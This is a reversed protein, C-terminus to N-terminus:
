GDIKRGSLAMLTGHGVNKVGKGEGERWEGGVSFIEAGGALWDSVRDVWGEVLVRPCRPM